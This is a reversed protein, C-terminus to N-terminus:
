EWRKWPARKSDWMENLLTYERYTDMAYFFGSHRYACLQNDACLRVLPESELVCGDQESLYEFIGPNFVFFGASAWNDVKPKEAFRTVKGAGDIDLIGFRSPPRVTTVTALKGHSKHFALLAAIDIDALGDGYTLMFTEDGVYRQVRKIRAGTMANQGTDALTVTFDQEQHAGHYEIHNSRGLSVSFDNNMAEYNLFYEKISNGRYGLCLVFERLGFHAYIKMIHWIIPRGGISVMPKPRFETEERM